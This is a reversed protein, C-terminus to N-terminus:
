RRPPAPPTRTFVVTLLRLFGGLFDTNVFSCCTPGPHASLKRHLRVLRGEGSDSVHDIIQVHKTHLFNGVPYPMTGRLGRSPALVFHKGDEDLAIEFKEELAMM